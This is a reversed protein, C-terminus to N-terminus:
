EIGSIVPRRGYNMPSVCPLLLLSTPPNLPSHHPSVRVCCPNSYHTVTAFFLIPKINGKQLCDVYSDYTESEKSGVPVKPFESTRAGIAAINFILSIM